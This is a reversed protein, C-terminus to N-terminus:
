RFGECGEGGDGDLLVVFDTGEFEEILSKLKVGLVIDDPLLSPQQFEGFFEV